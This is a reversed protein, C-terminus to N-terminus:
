QQEDQKELQAFLNQGFAVMCSTYYNYASLLTLIVAASLLSIEIHRAWYATTDHQYPNVILFTILMMQVATKLKGLFDVPLPKNNELAIIRLGMVFFDRGIFVIPWFFWIRGVVLLAIFTSFTLFKDAIHDLASGIRTVQNYKRAYYGDLFDTFSFLLFLAALALNSMLCNFPLFIVLLAPLLLPAIILRLLTLMMPKHLYFQMM